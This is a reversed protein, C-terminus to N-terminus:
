LIRRIATIDGATKKIRVCAAELREIVVTMHHANAHLIHSENVMIAVHGKWFILDGAKLGGFKAKEVAVATGMQAQMDSDRPADYGAARLASYVLGSCDLGDTSVGGWIYPLGLHRKAHEIYDAKSPAPNIPAIHAKHIFGVDMKVFDGVAELGSVMANLPLLMAIPSKIDAQNFVAAKLTCVKYNPIPQKDKTKAVALDARLVWGVYGPQDDHYLSSPLMQGWVWNSKEDHITFLEGYLLQSDAPSAATGHRKLWTASKIVRGVGQYKVRDDPIHIRPDSANLM